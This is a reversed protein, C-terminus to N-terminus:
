VKCVTATGAEIDIEVTICEGYKIWPSVAITIENRRNETLNEAEDEDLAEILSISEHAAQRISERVGDPDKFQIKIKM